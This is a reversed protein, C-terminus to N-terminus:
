FYNRHNKKRHNIKCKLTEWYKNIVGQCEDELTSEQDKSVMIVTYYTM